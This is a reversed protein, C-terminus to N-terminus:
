EGRLAEAASLGTARRAPIYSALLAVLLLGAAVAAFTIPDTPDVRFLLRTVLPALLATAALGLAVGALALLAGRRLVMRLLRGATAGLAMRIGFERTRQAVSYALVGYLGTTALLLGLAGLAALLSAALRQPALLRAVRDGMQYAAMPVEPDLGTATVRLAALVTEISGPIRVNLVMDTAPHQSYPLYFYPRASEGVTGYAMDRAVGVVTFEASATGAPHLRKGIPDQGPWFRRAFSENVIAAGPAGERDAPTFDRGRMLPIGMLSFYGPEVRNLGFAMDEGEHPSYGVIQVARRSVGGGLPVARSLAAATVGPLAQTREELTAYYARARTSDYDQLSLSPAMLVLGKAEFGVDATQANHLSRLLLGAGALLVLSIAMQAVVLGDRLALRRHGGTGSLSPTSEKLDRTLDPRTARLAPVLGFALGTAVTVMLAFGLVAGGGRVTLDNLGAQTPLMAVLTSALRRALWAGALGGALALILSETLFQRILRQRSAGLSVRLAIERRRSTARALQLTAVNANCLLLLLSVSGMLVGFFGVLSGRGDPPVRAQREPLVTMRRGRGTVDRWMLPYAAFLRAAILELRRQAAEPTVGPQLRGVLSIGRSDRARLDASGQDLADSMSRPLWLDVARGRTIGGFGAPAVGVITFPQGNLRMTRGLVSPDAGTARRWLGESLIAIPHAGPGRDEEPTFWRGRAPRVGLVAFYNASVLEGTVVAVTGRLNVSFGRQEYAALGSFVDGAARFEEYDPHSSTGFAPGSFDSTYVAVLEEPRQVLAPPRLLAAEILSFIATTSGIGLGLTGVIAVAVGPNKAFTRGAFQADRALERLFALRERRRLRGSDQRRLAARYRAPDGFRARAAAKAQEPSMGQSRYGEERMALHFRLEDDVDAGVDPGFFRLYRRWLPERGPSSAM